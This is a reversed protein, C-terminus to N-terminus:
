SEHTEIVTGIDWSCSNGQNPVRVGRTDVDTIKMITERDRCNHDGCMVETQNIVIGGNETATMSLTVTMSESDEAGMDERLENMNLAINNHLREMVLRAGPSDVVAEECTTVADRSQPGRVETGMTSDGCGVLLGASLLVASAFKKSKKAPARRRSMLGHRLKM